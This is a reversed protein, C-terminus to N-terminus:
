KTTLGMGSGQEKPTRLYAISFLVLWTADILALTAWTVAVRALMYLTPIAIAFSGKEIMAPIMAQRFRIPDSAILLFMVQWSLTVGLFGYYLEPHNIPPPNNRGFLDELFFPPVMMLLGIIGGLRFVWKAFKMPNSAGTAEIGMARPALRSRAATPRM